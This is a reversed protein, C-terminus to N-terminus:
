RWGDVPLGGCRTRGGCGSRNNGPNQWVPGAAGAPRRDGRCRRQRYVRRLDRDALDIILVGIDVGAAGGICERLRAASADPDEPLLLVQEDSREINSRDIGANAHVFGLRHRVILVGPACRVVRESERLILEVLRPDKDCQEALDRAARTADVEALRVYRGEAKSVIKQALVLIDGDRLALSNHKLVDLIIEDLADDPRILPFGSPAFLELRQSTL